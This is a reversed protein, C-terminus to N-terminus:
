DQSPVDSEPRRWKKQLVKTLDEDVKANWWDAGQWIAYRGRIGRLDAGALKCNRFDAMNMKAKRLDAGRFDCNDFNSKMLNAGRMAARSFDSGEFNAETLDAEELICRKFNSNPHIAKHLDAGSRGQFSWDLPEPEDDSGM